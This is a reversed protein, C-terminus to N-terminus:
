KILYKRLIEMSEERWAEIRPTVENYDIDMLLGNMKNKVEYQKLGLRNIVADFRVNHGRKRFYVCVNKQFYLAFLMGHYSATFIVSANKILSLFDSVSYPHVNKVGLIWKGYNISIVRLNKEKAYSKAESIMEATNFYLLIYRRRKELDNDRGSMKDWIAREILMTPDCVADVGIDGIKKIWEISEKERIAINSFDLIFPKIFDVEQGEWERGISTAFAIKKRSDSVFDLFYTTDETLKLDWLIDSGVLLVDYKKEAALINKREYRQSLRVYKNMESSLTFYKKKMGPEFLLFSLLGKVTKSRPKGAPLERDEILECKYDIVECEIGLSCVAEYLAFMQLFSGFNTTRQFTLIGIKM